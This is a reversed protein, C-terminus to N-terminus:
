DILIRNIVAEMEASKAELSEVLKIQNRCRDLNQTARNIKFYTDGNLYDTLFRMGIECAILRGSFVLLKKENETLVSGVVELYGRALAEFIPLQVFVRDLDVEDEQASNTFTRVMDGFDYLASGPMLTDLDLVCLGEGSLDDIMVNNIKTDNHTVRMPLKGSNLGDIIIPYNERRQKYFGMEQLVTKARGVKDEEFAKKLDLYRKETNHFHPITETLPGAPLDSVLKLFDGFTKAAAYAKSPDDIQDYTTAGEIAVYCRWYQDNRFVYSCGNVSPVIQLGRRYWDELGSSKLKVLIHDTVRQINQMLGEIDKFILHNIRQLVYRRKQAKDGMLVMFTDNIHGVRNPIVSILEGVM